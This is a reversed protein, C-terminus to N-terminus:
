KGNIYELMELAKTKRRNGLYPLISEIILKQGAHNNVAWKWAPKYPTGDKKCGSPQVKYISGVNFISQLRSIIDEDTMTCQIHLQKHNQSSTARKFISFCGEGELVGAAWAAQVDTLM